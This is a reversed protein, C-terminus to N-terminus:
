KFVGWQWFFPLKLQKRASTLSRKAEFFSVEKKRYQESTSQTRILTGMELLFDNFLRKRYVREAEDHEDCRWSNDSSVTIKFKGTDRFLISGRLIELCNAASTSHIYRRNNAIFKMTNFLDKRTEGPFGVIWNTEVQIGSLTVAKIM